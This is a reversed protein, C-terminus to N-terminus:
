ALTGVLSVALPGAARLKALRTTELFFAGAFLAALVARAAWVNGFDTNLLVNWAAGETFIASSPVDTMQAVQVVFWGAGTVLVFAFSLWAIRALRRRAIAPTYGDGRAM